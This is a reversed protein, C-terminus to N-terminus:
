KWIINGSYRIKLQESQKFVEGYETTYSKFLMQKKAKFTRIPELKSAAIM